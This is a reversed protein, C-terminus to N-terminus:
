EYIVIKNKGSNKASNLAEDVKSILRESSDDPSNEAIGISVTAGLNDKYRDEIDVSIRDAMLYADETNSNPLIIALEEGGYRAAFDSERIENNVLKGITNLINDGVEHGHTDNIQKFDDIDIMILSLQNNYRQAEKLHKELTLDFIGRLYLETLEDRTTIDGHHQSQDEEILKMKLDKDCINHMYDLAAVAVGVDRELARNLDQYHHQIIDWLLQASAETYLQHTLTYLLVRHLNEGYRDKYQQYINTENAITNVEDLSLTKRDEIISLSPQTNQSDSHETM